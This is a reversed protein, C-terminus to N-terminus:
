SAPKAVGTAGVFAPSSGNGTDNQATATQPLPPLRSARLARDVAEGAILAFALGAVGWSPSRHPRQLTVLMAVGTAGVCAFAAAAKTPAAEAALGTWASCGFGSACSSIPFFARGHLVFVDVREVVQQIESVYVKVENQKMWAWRVRLADTMCRWRQHELVGAIRSSAEGSCYWCQLSSSFKVVWAAGLRAHPAMSGPYRPKKSRHWLLRSGFIIFIEGDM